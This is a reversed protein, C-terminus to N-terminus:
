LSRDDSVIGRSYREHMYAIIAILFLFLHRVEADGFNWQTLGGVHMVVQAGLVGLVFVRHWFHNKPIENWLRHTMLLFVLVFSMYCIFGFLGTTSLMQLYTNHAHGGFENDIGLKQYYEGLREENQMYGIGFWPYDKFMELNAKWVDKRDANSFYNQDWVTQVRERFGPSVSYYFGGLSAIIILLSFLAKKSAYAGMVLTGAIAALWVGRGYTWLLSAGILVVGIFAGLRLLKNRRKGLLFVALVLCFLMGFSYGYTLHHSFFGVTKYVEANHFPAVSIASEPRLGWAYRADIGTFHQFCAYAAVIVSGYIIIFLRSNLGPFFDLAYTTLYLLLVWRMKAFFYFFDAKPANFWLGIAVCVVLGILAFDGGLRYPSVSDGKAVSIMLFLLTFLAIGTSALEMGTMSTLLSLSYLGLFFPVLYYFISLAGTPQERM